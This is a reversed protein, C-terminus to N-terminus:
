GCWIRWCRSCSLCRESWVLALPLCAPLKPSGSGGEALVDGEEEGFRSARRWLVIPATSGIGGFLLRIGLGEQRRWRTSEFGIAGDAAGVGLRGRARQGEGGRGKAEGMASMTSSVPVVNVPGTAIAPTLPSPKECRMPTRLNTMRQPFVECVVWEM